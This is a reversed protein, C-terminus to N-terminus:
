ENDLVAVFVCTCWSYKGNPDFEKNTCGRCPVPPNKIAESLPVILGNQATCVACAGPSAVVQVARVGGCSKMSRMEAKAWLRMTPMANRGTDRLREAIERYVCSRTDCDRAPTRRLVENWLAWEVDWDAPPHGFRIAMAAAEQEVDARTLGWGSFQNSLSEIARALRRQGIETKMTACVAEVSPDQGEKQRLEDRRQAYLGELGLLPIGEGQIADWQCVQAETLLTSPFVHQRARVFVSKGCDRCKTKGKPRKKM